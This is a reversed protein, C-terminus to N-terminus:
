KRYRFLYDFFSFRSNFSFRIDDEFDDGFDRFVSRRDTNTDYGKRTVADSLIEYAQFNDFYFTLM